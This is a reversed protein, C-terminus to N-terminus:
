NDQFKVSSIQVVSIIDASKCIKRSLGKSYRQIKQLSCYLLYESSIWFPHVWIEQDEANSSIFTMYLWIWIQLTHTSSIQNRVSAYYGQSTHALVNDQHLIFRLRVNVPHKDHITQGCSSCFVSWLPMIVCCPEFSNGLFWLFYRINDKQFKFTLSKCAITIISAEFPGKNSAKMNESTSSHKM